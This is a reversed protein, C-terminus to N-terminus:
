TVLVVVILECSILQANDRVKVLMDMFLYVLPHNLTKPNGFFAKPVIIAIMWLADSVPRGRSPADVIM